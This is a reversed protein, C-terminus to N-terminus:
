TPAEDVFDKSSCEAEVFGPGYQTFPKLTSVVYNTSNWVVVDADFKNGGDKSPGRLRFTTVVTITDASAEFDEKRTLSNDGTPFIAGIVNDTRVDNTTKRGQQSIVEQRRIVSFTTGAIDPDFLVDTVDVDAM